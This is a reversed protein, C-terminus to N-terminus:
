VIPVPFPVVTCPCHRLPLSLHRTVLPSCSCPVRLLLGLPIEDLGQRVVSTVSCLRLCFSHTPRPLRTRPCVTRQAANKRRRTPFRCM